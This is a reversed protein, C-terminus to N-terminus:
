INWIRYRHELMKLRLTDAMLVILSNVLPVFCHKENIRKLM